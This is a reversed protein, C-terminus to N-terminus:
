LVSTRKNLLPQLKRGEEGDLLIKSNIGGFRGPLRHLRLFPVLPPAPLILTSAYRM